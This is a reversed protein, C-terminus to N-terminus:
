PITWQYSAPYPLLEIDIWRRRVISLFSSYFLFWLFGFLMWWSLSPLWVSWPVDKVGGQLIQQVYQLEPGWNWDIMERYPAPATRASIFNDLIVLPTSFLFHYISLSAVASILAIHKSSIKSPVLNGIVLALFMVVIPLNGGIATSLNAWTPTYLDFVQSLVTCIIATVTLVCLFRWTILKPKRVESATM